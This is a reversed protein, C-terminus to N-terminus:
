FAPATVNFASQASMICARADEAPAVLDTVRRGGADLCPESLSGGFMALETSIDFAPVFVLELQASIELMDPVARSLTEVFAPDVDGIVQV